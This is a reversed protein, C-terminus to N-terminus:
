AAKRKGFMSRIEQLKQRAKPSLDRPEEKNELFAVVGRGDGQVPAPLEAFYSMPLLGREVAGAVVAARMRKDSGMSPYWEPNVGQNRNETVTREYSDRFAMRAGVEDGVDMIPRAVSMAANIEQNTIITMSEDFGSLAIGWAENATPRGDASEIRELVAALTLRGTLERRCRTMATIVASVKYNGLEREMAQLAVVSLETGTLEATVALARTIESM